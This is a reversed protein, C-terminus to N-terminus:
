ECDEGTPYPKALGLAALTFRTVHETVAELDLEDIQEQGFLMVSVNRNQRYYLCQGVISFGIMLRQKEAAKPMLERVLERLTFAMPRIFDEVVARTAPTTNAMERMLLQLSSQRVPGHMQRLMQRIFGRLKDVAPAGVVWPPLPGESMSCTHAHKVAEIYLKEKDGFHYNIAAVNMGAQDCIERVTAGDFGKAAFVEEAVLLLRTRPDTTLKPEHADIM